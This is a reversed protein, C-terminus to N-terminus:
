VGVCTRLTHTHMFTCRTDICCHKYKHMYAHPYVHTDRHIHTCTDHNRMLEQRCLGLTGLSDIHIFTLPIQYPWPSSGGRKDLSHTWSDSRGASDICVALIWVLVLPSLLPLLYFVSSSSSPSSFPSFYYSLFSIFFLCSYILLLLFYFVFLLFHDFYLFFQQFPSFSLRFFSFLSFMFTIISMRFPLYSSICYFRFRILTQISHFYLFFETSKFFIVM